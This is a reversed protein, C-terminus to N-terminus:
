VDDVPLEPVPPREDVLSRDASLREKAVPSVLLGVLVIADV